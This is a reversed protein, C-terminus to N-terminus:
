MSYEHTVCEMCMSYLNEIVTRFGYSSKVFSLEVDNLNYIGPRMRLTLDYFSLTFARSTHLAAAHTERISYWFLLGYTKAVPNFRM